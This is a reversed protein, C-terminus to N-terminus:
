KVGLIKKWRPRSIYLKKNPNMIEDYLRNFEDISELRIHPSGIVIEELLKIKNNVNKQNKNLGSLCGNYMSINYKKMLAKAEQHPSISKDGTGNGAIGVPRTHHIPYLDIVGINMGKLIKPWLADLGWGSKNESFTKWCKEFADKSFCPAMVEVFNTNRYIFNSVKLLIPHSFYSNVTLAPQSLAFKYKHNVLFYENLNKATTDLDDDPLWIYDYDKWISYNNKFFDYLGEWKSGKFYHVYEIHSLDYQISDGFYSLVVDFNSEKTVWNPHLSKDGCRLVVLVKM